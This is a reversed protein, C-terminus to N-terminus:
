AASPKATAPRTPAPTVVQNSSRPCSSSGARSALISTAGVPVPKTTLPTNQDHTEDGQEREGNGSAAERFQLRGAAGDFPKAACSSAAAVSGYMVIVVFVLTSLIM